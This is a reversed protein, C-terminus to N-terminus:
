VNLHQVVKLKISKIKDRFDRKKGMTRPWEVRAYVTVYLNKKM